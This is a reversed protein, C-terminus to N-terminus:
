EIGYGIGLIWERHPTSCPWTSLSPKCVNTRQCKPFFLECFCKRVISNECYGWKSPNSSIWAFHSASYDEFIFFFELISAVNAFFGYKELALFPPKKRLLGLFRFSLFWKRFIESSSHETIWDTAFIPREFLGCKVNFIVPMQSFHPRLVCLSNIYLSM